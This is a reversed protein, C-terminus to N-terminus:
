VDCRDGKKNVSKPDFFIGRRFAISEITRFLIKLDLWFSLNDVYYIDNKLREKWRVSNRFFVQNYGTIGPLVDLKRKEEGEYLNIHDPLDPRPGIVSMDNKLVNLIQPTEDLSTKRIFKGIRTLRPDDEANYTSGDENRLDPAKTKMSRFKYMKYVKGNKGLRDAKYLIPGRDELYIIPGVVLFILLLIPLGLLAIIIDLIRKLYKKYV